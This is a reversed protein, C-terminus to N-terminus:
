PVLGIALICMLVLCSIWRMRVFTFRTVFLWVSFFAIVRAKFASFFTSVAPDSTFDLSVLRLRAGFAFGGLFVFFGLFVFVGFFVFVGLGFGADGFSGWVGM